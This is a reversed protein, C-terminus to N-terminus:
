GPEHRRRDHGQALLPATSEILDTLPGLDSENRENTRIDLAYFVLACKGIDRIDSTYRLRERNADFLEVFGPEDIPFDAANLRDVLAANPDFCVVEFGKAASALSYNLGLHTLGVFGIMPIPM